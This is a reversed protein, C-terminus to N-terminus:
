EFERIIRMSNICVSPSWVPFFKVLRRSVVLLSSICLSVTFGSSLDLSARLAFGAQCGAICGGDGHFQAVGRACSADHGENGKRRSIRLEGCMSFWLFCQLRLFNWGIEILFIRWADDGIRWDGRGGWVMQAIWWKRCRRQLVGFLVPAVTPLVSYICQDKFGLKPEPGSRPAQIRVQLSSVPGQPKSGQSCRWRVHCFQLFFFIIWLSNSTTFLTFVVFKLNQHKLVIFHMSKGLEILKNLNTWEILINWDCIYLLRHWLKQFHIFSDNTPWLFIWITQELWM